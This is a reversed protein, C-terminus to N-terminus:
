NLFVRYSVGQASYRQETDSIAHRAAQGLAADYIWVNSNDYGTLMEVSGDSLTAKVPLGCSIYYLVESLTAGTLDYSRAQPYSSQVHEPDFDEPLSLPNVASRRSRKWIAQQDGDVVIGMEEDALSVADILRSYFALCEGKAYVYYGDWPQDDPLEVVPVEDKQVERSNVVNASTHKAQSELAIQVQLQKRDDFTKQINADLLQEGEHNL